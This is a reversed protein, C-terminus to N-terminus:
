ADSRPSCTTSRSTNDYSVRAATSLTPQKSLRLDRSGVSASATTNASIATSRKSVTTLKKLLSTRRKEAPTTCGAFLESILSELDWMTCPRVDRFLPKPPGSTNPWSSASTIATSMSCRPSTATPSCGERSTLRSASVALETCCGNPDQYVTSAVSCTTPRPSTSYSPFSNPIRRAATDGLASRQHRNGGLAGTRTHHTERSRMHKLVIEMIMEACLSHIRPGGIHPFESAIQHAISNKLNRAKLPGFKKRLFDTQNNM